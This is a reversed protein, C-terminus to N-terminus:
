LERLAREVNAYTEEMTGSNDIVTCERGLREERSMQNGVLIEILPEPFQGGMMEGHANAVVLGLEDLDAFHQVSGVCLQILLM